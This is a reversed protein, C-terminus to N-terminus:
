NRYGGEMHEVKLEPKHKELAPLAGEGLLSIVREYLRQMHGDEANALMLIDRVDAAKTM